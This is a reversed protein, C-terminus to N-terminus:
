LGREPLNECSLQKIGGKLGNGFMQDTNSGSYRKSKDQKVEVVWDLKAMAQQRTDVTVNEGM